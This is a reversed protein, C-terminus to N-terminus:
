SKKGFMGRWRSHAQQPPPNMQADLHTKVGIEKLLADLDLATGGTRGKSLEELFVDRMTKQVFSEQKFQPKQEEALAQAALAAKVEDADPTFWGRLWHIGEHEHHLRSKEITHFVDREISDVRTHLTTSNAFVVTVHDDITVFAM